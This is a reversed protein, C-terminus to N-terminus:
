SLWPIDAGHRVTAFVSPLLAGAPQPAGFSHPQVDDIQGHPPLASSNQCALLKSFKLARPEVAQSDNRQLDVRAFLKM